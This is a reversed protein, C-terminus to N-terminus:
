SLKVCFFYFVSYYTQYKWSVSIENSLAIILGNLFDCGMVWNVHASRTRQNGVLVRVFYTSKVLSSFRSRTDTVPQKSDIMSFCTTVTFLPSKHTCKNSVIMENTIYLEITNLGTINSSILYLMQKIGTVTIPNKGRMCYGFKNQINILDEDQLPKCILLHNSESIYWRQSHALKGLLVVGRGKYPYLLPGQRTINYRILAM